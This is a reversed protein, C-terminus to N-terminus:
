KDFYKKNFYEIAERPTEWLKEKKLWNIFDKENGTLYIFYQAMTAVRFSSEHHYFDDDVRGRNRDYFTNILIDSKEQTHNFYQMLFDRAIELIVLTEEDTEFNFNFNTNSM